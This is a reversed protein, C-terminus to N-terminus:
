TWESVEGVLCEGRFGGFEVGRFCIGERGEVGGQVDFVGVEGEEDQVGKRGM